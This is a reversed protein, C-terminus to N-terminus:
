SSKPNALDELERRTEESMPLYANMEDGDFDASYPGTINAKINYSKDESMPLYANM